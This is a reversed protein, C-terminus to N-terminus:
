PNDDGGSKGQTFSSPRTRSSGFQARYSKPSVSLPEPTSSDLNLFPDPTSSYSIYPPSATTTAPVHPLFHHVVKAYFSLARRGERGIGSAACPSQAGVTTSPNELEHRLRECGCQVDVWTAGRTRRRRRPRAPPALCDDLELLRQRARIVFTM